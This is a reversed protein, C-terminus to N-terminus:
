VLIDIYKLIFDDVMYACLLLYLTTSIVSSKEQFVDIKFLFILTKNLFINLILIDSVDSFVIIKKLFVEYKLNKQEIWKTPM